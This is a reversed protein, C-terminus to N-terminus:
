ANVAEEQQHQALREARRRDSEAKDHAIVADRFSESLIQVSPGHIGPTRALLTPCLMSGAPIPEDIVDHGLEYIRLKRLRQYMRVTLAVAYCALVPSDKPRTLCASDFDCQLTEAINDMGEGTPYADRDLSMLWKAVSDLSEDRWLDDYAGEEFDQFFDRLSQPDFRLLVAGDREGYEVDDNDLRDRLWALATDHDYERVAYRQDGALKELWYHFDIQPASDYLAYTMWGGGLCDSNQKKTWHDDGLTFFEVMDHLRAFTYGDAIDGTISLHDPWTVVDWGWMSTGPHRMRLHRYVGDDHMVTLVHDKTQEQFESWVRHRNAEAVERPTPFPQQKTTSDNM